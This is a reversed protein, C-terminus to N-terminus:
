KEEIAELVIEKLAKEFGDRDFEYVLGCVDYSDDTTHNYVRLYESTIEGDISYEVGDIEVYGGNGCEYTGEIFNLFAYEENDTDLDLLIGNTYGSRIDSGIHVRVYAFMNGFEDQLLRYDIDTNSNGGWNYSNDHSIEIFATHINLEDITEENDDYMPYSEILRDNTLAEFSSLWQKVDTGVYFENSHSRVASDLVNQIASETTALGMYDMTMLEELTFTTNTM